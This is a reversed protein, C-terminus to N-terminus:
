NSVAGECNAMDSAESDRAALQDSGRIGPSSRRRRARSIGGPLRGRAAREPQRQDAVVPTPSAQAGPDYMGFIIDGM